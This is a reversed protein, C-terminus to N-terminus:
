RTCINESRFLKTLILPLGVKNRIELFMMENNLNVTSTEMPLQSQDLVMIRKKDDVACSIITMTIGLLSYFQRKQHVSLKLQLIIELLM